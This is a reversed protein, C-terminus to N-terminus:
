REVRYLEKLIYKKGIDDLADLDALDVPKGFEKRLQSKLERLKSFLKFPDDHKLVEPKFRFLIDIDSSEDAEERAYSGFLGLIMVGKKEFLSKNAMLKRLVTERDM